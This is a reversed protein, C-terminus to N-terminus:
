FADLSDSERHKTRIIKYERARCHDILYNVKGMVEQINGVYYESEPNTWESQFDILVLATETMHTTIFYLRSTLTIIQFHNEFCFFSSRVNRPEKIIKM